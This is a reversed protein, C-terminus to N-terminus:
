FGRSLWQEEQEVSKHHHRNSGNPFVDWPQRLVVEAVM